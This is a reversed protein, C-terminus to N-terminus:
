VENESIRAMFKSTGGKYVGVELMEVTESKPVRSIAHDVAQAINYLRDYDLCCRQEEISLRAIEGFPQEERIDVKKWFAGSLMELPVLGM